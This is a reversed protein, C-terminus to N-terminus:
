TVRYHVCAATMLHGMNYMEFDLPNQFPSPKSSPGAPIDGNREAILVPTHIYGDSRQAKAIVEICGEIIQDLNPDNTVALTASASELWKYFDGDNFPAGRHHGETVGAASQFNQFFQSYNTGEMMRWMTPITQTRCVEFSEAWFGRTWDVETPDVPTISAAAALLNAFATLFSSIRFGFRSAFWFNLTLIEAAKDKRIKFKPNAESKSMRIESKNRSAKSESPLTLGAASNSKATTEIAM